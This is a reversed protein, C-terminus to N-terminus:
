KGLYRVQVGLMGLTGRGKEPPACGGPALIEPLSPALIKPVRM